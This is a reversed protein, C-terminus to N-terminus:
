VFRVYRGLRILPAGDLDVDTSAAAFALQGHASWTAGSQAAFPEGLAVHIGPLNEDHIIEGLPTLIGLNTGLSVLGLRDRNAGSSAFGEVYRKLTLDNCDVGKLRGGEFTLKIPKRALLGTRAGTGGGVAADAVFVGNAAHPSTSWRASRSTSGSAPGCRTM